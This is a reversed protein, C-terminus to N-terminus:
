SQSIEITDLGELRKESVHGLSMHLLQMCRKGIRKSGSINNDSTNCYIGGDVSTIPFGLIHMGASSVSAQFDNEIRMYIQGPKLNRGVKM